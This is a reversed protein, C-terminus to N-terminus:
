SAIPKKVLHSRDSQTTTIKYKSFLEGSPTDHPMVHPKADYNATIENMLATGYGKKRHEELIFIQITYKSVRKTYTTGHHPRRCDLTVPCLLAWGVPHPDHIIMALPERDKNRYIRDLEELMMGEYGFNAEYVFDIASPGLDFVPKVTILM